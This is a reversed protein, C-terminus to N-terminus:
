KNKNYWNIFEVVAKYVTLIKTPECTNLEIVEMHSDQITCYLSSGITVNISNDNELMVLEIKEVVPMLWDWSTHYKLEEGEFYHELYFHPAHEKDERLEPHNPIYYMPNANIEMFEAILKNNELNKM